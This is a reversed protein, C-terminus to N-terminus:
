NEINNIWLNRPAPQGYDLYDLPGFGKVIAQPGRDSEGRGDEQMQPMYTFLFQLHGDKRIRM